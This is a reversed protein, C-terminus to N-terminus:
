EALKKYRDPLPKGPEMKNRIMLVSWNSPTGVAAGVTQWGERTMQPVKKKNVYQVEVLDDLSDVLTGM